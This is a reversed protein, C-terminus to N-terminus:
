DADTMAEAVCHEPDHGSGAYCHCERDTLGFDWSGPGTVIVSKDRFEWRTFGGESATRNKHAGAADCADDIWVEAGECDSAHPARGGLRPNGDGSGCTCGRIVKLTMGDQYADGIQQASTQDNRDM